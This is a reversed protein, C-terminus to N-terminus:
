PVNFKVLAAAKLHIDSGTRLIYGDKLTASNQRPTIICLVEANNLRQLQLGISFLTIVQRDGSPKKGTQQFSSDDIGGDGCVAAILVDDALHQGAIHNRGSNAIQGTKGHPRNGTVAPLFGCSHLDAIVVDQFPQVAKTFGDATRCIHPQISVCQFAVQKGSCVATQQLVVIGM